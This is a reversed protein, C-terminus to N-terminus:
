PGHLVSGCIGIDGDVTPCISKLLFAPVSQAQWHLPPRVHINCSRRVMQSRWSTMAQSMAQMPATSIRVVGRTTAPPCTWFGQLAACCTHISHFSCRWPVFRCCLVTRIGVLLMACWSTQLNAVVLWNTTKMCPALVQAELKSM